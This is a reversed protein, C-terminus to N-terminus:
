FGQEELVKYLLRPHDFEELNTGTTVRRWDKSAKAGFPISIGLTIGGALTMPIGFVYTSPGSRPQPFQTAWAGVGLLLGTGLLSGGVVMSVASAVRDRHRVRRLERYYTTLHPHDLERVVMPLPLRAGNRELSSLSIRRFRPRGRDDLVDDLLLPEGRRNILMLHDRDTPGAPAPSASPSTDQLASVRGSGSPSPTWAGEVVDERADDSWCQEEDGPDPMRGTGVLRSRRVPYLSENMRVVSVHFVGRLLKGVVVGNSTRLMGWRTGPPATEVRHRERTAGVLWRPPRDAVCLADGDSDLIPLAGEKGDEVFVAFDMDVSPAFHQRPPAPIRGPVESAVSTALEAALRQPVRDPNKFSFTEKYPAEVEYGWLLKDEDAGRWRLELDVVCRSPKFPTINCYFRQVNLEVYAGPTAEGPVLGIGGAAAGRVVADAVWDAVPRSLYWPELSAYQGGGVERDGIRDPQYRSMGDWSAEQLDNVVLPYPGVLREPLAPAPLEPDRALAVSSTLFVAAGVLWALHRQM